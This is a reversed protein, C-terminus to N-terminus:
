KRRGKWYDAVSEGTRSLPVVKADQLGPKSTSSKFVRGPWRQLYMVHRLYLLTWMDSLQRCYRLMSRLRSTWRQGLYWEWTNIAMIRQTLRLQDQHCRYWDAGAQPSSQSLEVPSTTSASASLEQQHSQLLTLIESAVREYRPELTREYAQSMRRKMIISLAIALSRERRRRLRHVLSTVKMRSQLSSM